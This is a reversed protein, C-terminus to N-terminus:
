CIFRPYCSRLPVRDSPPQEKGAPQVQASAAEPKRKPPRPTGRTPRKPTFEAFLPGFKKHHHRQHRPRCGQLVGEYPCPSHQYKKELSETKPLQKGITTNAWNTGVRGPGGKQVLRAGSSSSPDSSLDSERDEELKPFTDRLRWLAHCKTNTPSFLRGM